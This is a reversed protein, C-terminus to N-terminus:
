RHLRVDTLILNDAENESVQSSSDSENDSDESKSEREHSEILLTNVSHSNAGLSSKCQKPEALL